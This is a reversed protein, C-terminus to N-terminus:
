NAKLILIECSLITKVVSLINILCIREKLYHPNYM